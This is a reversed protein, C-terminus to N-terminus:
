DKQLEYVGSGEAKRNSIGRDTRASICNAFEIERPKNISLDVGTQRDTQRDLHQEELVGEDLLKQVLDKAKQTNIYYKEDVNEELIDKLRMGNDFPIPFTFTGTDIDKRVYIAFVRERNQPVGCDKANIVQWYTNYGFSEILSNFLEFDNIFKKGVLNKVNELFIIKPLHGEEQYARLLRINQWILSSRTNQDPDLGMLKGAVSIDTCPSSTFLVDCEPLSEVRNIDGLNKNLQCALWYKKVNHEFKKGTKWWNYSEQTEPKYGLNITTLFSRMDDMSPYDHYTNVLDETLGHHIAAYSLTADKDIESTAVVEVDFLGTNKVGMYQAGIGSFLEIIRLKEKKIM